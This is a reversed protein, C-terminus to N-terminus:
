EENIIKKIKTFLECDNSLIIFDQIAWNNNYPILNIENKKHDIAVFSNRNSDITIILNDVTHSTQLWEKTNLLEDKGPLQSFIFKNLEQKDWVTVEGGATNTVLYKNKIQQGGHPKTLNDILVSLKRNKKNLLKVDGDHFFTLLINGNKDYEASNIFATRLATPLKQIHPNEILIVNKKNNKLYNARAVNKTIYYEEGTKPHLGRDLGEEWANWTWIEKGDEVDIEMITDVGSSAVLIKNGEKNFKITHIYSYWPNCFKQFSNQKMDIKFIKNESSLILINNKHDIGRAEAYKTIIEEKEIRGNKIEVYVLGGIAPERREVSGGKSRKQSSLYRERIEQM